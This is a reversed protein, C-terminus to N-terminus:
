ERTQRLKYELSKKVMPWEHDIISFVVTDRYSGDANKQHNRLVGDQKAGLRAIATRSAHNHWHTRFEVAIVALAEFAYGLLLRKCETNVATRQHSKAYWTYGIEVRRNHRDANCIRTTGVIKQTDNHVVVFPLARGATQESLAFGVYDDVTNENPASTFWLEWLRGDAAAEVLAAAHEKRLPILSVTKSKLETEILWSSDSM